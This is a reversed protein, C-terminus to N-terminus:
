GIIKALQKIEGDIPNQSVEDWDWPKNPHAGVADMTLNPNRSVWYWNWPLNPHALIMEM